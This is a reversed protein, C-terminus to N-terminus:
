RYAGGSESTNRTINNTVATKSIGNTGNSPQAPSPWACWVVRGGQPQSVNGTEDKIRAVAPETKRTNKSM